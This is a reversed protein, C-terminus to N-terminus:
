KILTKKCRINEDSCTYTNVISNFHLYLACNKHIKRIFLAKSNTIISDIVDNTLNYYTKPMTHEEYINESRENWNVYTIVDNIYLINCKNCIEIFYLEDPAFKKEFMYTFDNEIFFNVTSRNLLMWQQQKREGPFTNIINSNIDFITKYIHEFNHLPICKDSLLMFYENDENLFAEKFLLITARVLSIDGWKTDIKNQICYKDLGYKKDIFDHKNHIYASVKDQNTEIISKWLFPKSLNEYTLFCLAIKKM